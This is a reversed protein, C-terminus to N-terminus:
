ECTLKKDVTAKTLISSCAPTIDGRDNAILMLRLFGSSHSDGEFAEVKNAFYQDGLDIVLACAMNGADHGLSLGRSKMEQTVLVSFHDAWDEESFGTEEEGSLSVAQDQFPNRNAVCNASDYYGNSEDAAAGLRALYAFRHGMEHAFISVGLGRFAITYWSVMIHGKATYTADSLTGPSIGECVKVLSSAAENSESDSDSGLVLTYLLMQDIDAGGSRLNLLQSESRRQTAKLRLILKDIEESAPKPLEYRTEDIGKRLDVLTQGGVFRPAIAKASAKVEEIMQAARRRLLDSVSAGELDNIAKVCVPLVAQSLAGAKVVQQDLSKRVGDTKSLRALQEPTAQLPMRQLELSEDSLFAMSMMGVAQAAEVYAAKDTPMIDGGAAAKNFLDREYAGLAVSVLAAHRQDLRALTAVLTKADERLADAASLDPSQLKLRIQLEDLETNQYKMLTANLMPLLLARLVGSILRASPGQPNALVYLGIAMQNEAFVIQKDSRLTYTLLTKQDAALKTAVSAMNLLAKMPHNPDLTAGKDLLQNLREQRLKAQELEQAQIKLVLPEIVKERRARADVTEATRGGLADFGSVNTKAPGCISEICSNIEPANEAPLQRKSSPAQESKRKPKKPVSKSIQGSLDNMKQKLTTAQAVPSLLLVPLAFSLVSRM